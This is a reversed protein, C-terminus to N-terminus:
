GHGKLRDPLAEGAISRLMNAVPEMMSMIRSKKWWGEDDLQVAQALILAIGLIVVGRLLGMVFGLLRDLGSFISLRVFHDIIAALGAGIVLVAVFVIGRAAWTGFPPQRLAGGLHPELWPGLKWALWVALVWAVLSCIERLFGRVVGAIASLLVIGLVIYDLTAM